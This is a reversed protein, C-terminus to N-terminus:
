QIDAKFFDESQPESVSDQSNPASTKAPGASTGASSNETATGGALANGGAAGPETGGVFAELIAGPAKPSIKKGTKGDIAVFVVGKPPTFDASPYGKVAEKMFDLWIPLAVAAGTAKPAITKQNDFGVWTGTVLQPTFGMFWADIYDNTTGTKGAALRGLNKAEAGTGMTAVENMLHTMVYATRPDMVRDPDAPDPAFEGRPPTQTGTVSGVAAEAQLEGGVKVAKPPPPLIESVAPAPPTSPTEELTRGSRDSVKRIFITRVRRGGRPFIAYARTLDLLSASSSGLAISLDPPLKEGIGLRRSYDILYPIQIDQVIKITPINRSRILASRFTTDGYFKEEYNEPKWKQNDGADFVVPSDQIITAPTYGKDVAASYIIPKYASGPQRMAQTARNFESEEFDYGGVMALVEGSAADISLLAGQVEPIQELAFVPLPGKGAKAVLSVWILDGKELAQSPRAIQEVGTSSPTKVQQAWRMKELPIVGRISGMRVLVEKKADDVLSVVAQYLAGGEYADIEARGAELRVKADASRTGDPMLVQFPYKRSLNYDGAEGIAAEIEEPAKNRRIPGRYGQKKDVSRLGAQVSKAAVMSLAPDVPTSVTLQGSYLTEKGYKELLHKRVYEVYYPSYKRNVDQPLYIRVALKAAAEMQTQTIAGDEYLRRLVYLQREKARKPNALPSYKSPAQPLGALIAAEALSLDKAEKNFYVHAAAEVGYAGHGLYIQNLYLFLIQKKTLNKEMRSALIVERMKRFFSREPTLLLSKAVQQTITSGGQVVRGARFNAIAARLIGQLDIGQHEYFRDDEAAIFARAAIDPIKEMPVVYRREEFFEGVVTEGRGLVRTVTLPRYDETTIINPLGRSFSMLAIAGIVSVVATSAVLVIFFYKLILGFLRM